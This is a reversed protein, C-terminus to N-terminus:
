DRPSPSTYLLCIQDIAAGVNEIAVISKVADIVRFYAVAAIDVSVNDKTIIGQSQIPMTVIRLSVKVLRDIVPIILHLGPDKTGIVRGLRFLVGREFQVVIKLALALLIMVIVAAIVIGVILGM